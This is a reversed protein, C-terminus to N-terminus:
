YGRRMDIINEPTEGRVFRLINEAAFRIQDREITESYAARHPSIVVNELEHFPFESPPFGESRSRPPYHWWVDIAAGSIKQQNLADYLAKENVIPGRAVNVLLSTPKMWSLFREDVLGRTELTLPLAIIVFDAQRVYPEMEDPTVVGEVLNPIDASGSRTVAWTKVGFADLRRAIDSGIHGLGLLLSNKGRIEINPSPGGWGFKWDGERLARDSQVINKALSLLLGIAYEAVEESNLRSNCVIVDGRGIVAERDIKDVGAGFSQIMKLNPANRIFEGSVRGSAIVSAEGGKELMSEVTRESQIVQAEDGLIEQISQVLNDGYPVLIKM